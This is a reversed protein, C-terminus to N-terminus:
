MKKAINSNGTAKKFSYRINNLIKINNVGLIFHRLLLKAEGGLMPPYYLLSYLLSKRFKKEDGANYYGLAARGYAAAFAKRKIRIDLNKSEPSSFFKKVSVLHDQGSRFGITSTKAAPWHRMYSWVEPIFLTPFRFGIRIWLDWDMSMSLREDVMGVTDIATKTIFTSPQAVTNRSTILTSALDFREGFERHLSM